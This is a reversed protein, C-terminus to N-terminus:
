ALQGGTGIEFMQLLQRLRQEVRRFRAIRFRELSEGHQGRERSLREVLDARDIQRQVIRLRRDRAFVPERRPVGQAFFDLRARQRELRRDVLENAACGATGRSTRFPQERTM